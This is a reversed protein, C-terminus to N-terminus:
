RKFLGGIKEILWRIADARSHVYRGSATRCNGFNLADQVRRLIGDQRRDLQADVHGPGRDYEGRLPVEITVTEVPILPEPPDLEEVRPVEDPEPPAITPIGREEGPELSIADAMGPSEDNAALIKPPIGLSEVIKNQVQRSYETLNQVESVDTPKKKAAKKKAM